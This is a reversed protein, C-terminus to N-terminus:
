PASRPSADQGRYEYNARATLSTLVEVPLRQQVRALDDLTLGLKSDRDLLTVACGEEVGPIGTVDVVAHELGVGVIPAIRGALSAVQRHKSVLLSNSFGVPLVGLLTERSAVAAGGFGFRAGAPVRRLGGLLTGVERLVPRTGLSRSPGAARVSAPEIGFLLQGPCVANAEPLKLGLAIGDSSFAQVILPTEIRSRIEAVSRGFERMRGEIWPLADVDSFPLHTFIGDLKVTPLNSIIRVTLSALEGIPVGFRGLGVDVKIFVSATSSAARAVSEAEEYSQIGISIGAAALESDERNGVTPFLLIRCAIGWRRLALAEEPSGVALWRVSERQLCEAIARLGHGYANAKICAIIEQDDGARRRVRRVNDGLADLDVM